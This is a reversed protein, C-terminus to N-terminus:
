PRASQLCSRLKWGEGQHSGAGAKADSTSYSKGRTKSSSTGTGQPTQWRLRSKARKITLRSRMDGGADVVSGVITQIDPRRKVIETFVECAAIWFQDIPNSQRAPQSPDEEVAIGLINLTMLFGKRL